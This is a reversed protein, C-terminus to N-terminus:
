APIVGDPLVTETGGPTVIAFGDDTLLIKERRM